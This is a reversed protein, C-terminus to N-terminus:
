VPLTVDDYGYIMEIKRIKKKRLVDKLIYNRDNKQGGYNTNMWNMTHTHKLTRRTM